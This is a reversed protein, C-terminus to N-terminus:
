GRLVTRAYLFKDKLDKPFLRDLVSDDLMMRLKEPPVLKILTYWDYTTLLRRYLSTKDVGEVGEIEDNLLQLLLSADLKLDWSIMSLRRKKEETSFPRM